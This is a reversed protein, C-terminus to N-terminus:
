RERLAEEKAKILPKLLYTLVTKKGTKIQVVANMGPTIYLKHHEGGFYSKNTQIKVLYFSEMPETDPTTSNEKSRQTETIAGKSIYIVKGILSGYITYDYATIKVSASQGIEIFAIDSPKIRAQIVLSDSLPVIEMIVMGPTIVGGITKANLKNVIGHVPSRIATDEMKDKLAILNESRSALEAKSQNLDTLVSEQFKHNKELVQQKISASIRLLNLYEVESVSGQKILPLYMGAEKEAITLQENLTEMEKALADRRTNFLNKELTILEPKNEQVEKPFEIENKGNAEASLRAVMASLALYKEYNTEYDSKYRTDDLRILIQGPKVIEGESVLIQSIVGGDLSQIIKNEGSPIVVGSATTSQDIEGFYAWVLLVAFLMLLVYLIGSFLLTPKGLLASKSDSIYNEEEHYYSQNAKKANQKKFFKM